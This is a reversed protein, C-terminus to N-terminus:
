EASYKKAMKMTKEMFSQRQSEPELVEVDDGFSLILSELEKNPIVEIQVICEKSDLVKQSPHLAKTIVYNFRKPTFKLVVTEREVDNPVTVGVVDEFYEEFNIKDNPIYDIHYPEIEVIRDVPFNMIRDHDRETIGFLYWRNNYQKLYYPHMINTIPDKDYPKYVVKLPQKNKIYNYISSVHEIGRLYINKEYGVIPTASKERGLKDEFNAIFEDIWDFGEMGTFRNLMILAEDITNLEAETFDKKNISFKPDSYCYYCRRGDQRAVIPADWDIKMDEIDKYVTRRSVKTGVAESCKHILDEIYYRYHREAFCADLARYRLLAQKNTPM